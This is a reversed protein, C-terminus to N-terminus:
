WATRFELGGTVAGGASCDSPTAGLAAIGQSWDCRLISSCGLDAAWWRLCGLRGRVDDGCRLARRPAPRRGAHGAMRTGSMGFPHGITIGGGNVNLWGSRNRLIHIPDGRLPREVSSM